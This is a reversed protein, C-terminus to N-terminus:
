PNFTVVTFKPARAGPSEEFDLVSSYSFDIAAMALVLGLARDLVM